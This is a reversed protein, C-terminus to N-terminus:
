RRCLKLRDGQQWGFGWRTAFDVDATNSAIDQLHVCCYHFVDMLMLYVFQAQESSSDQLAKFCKAWDKEKFILALSEDAQGDAAIYENKNPNFVQKGKKIYIGKGTKQGPVGDSILKNLFDPLKYYAQWPDDNIIIKWRRLSMRWYMWALWMWLVFPERSPEDWLSVPSRISEEFPINLKQAHYITAYRPPNFFHIGIFNQRMKEPLIDALLNIGLGSTNTALIADEKLIGNIKNYLDKEWEINEAIAEIVLDCESLSELDDYNTAEIFGEIGKTAYPPPKLKMLSKIAQKSLASKDKGEAALEFLIVLVNMNALLAAIQTGMIGAGLVAVKEFYKKM